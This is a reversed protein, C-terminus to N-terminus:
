STFYFYDYVFKSIRAIIEEVDKSKLTMDKTFITLAVHGLNDPLYIIGSDNVTGGITGTKHAIKTGAPLNGKIRGQGTQCELMLSLIFDCSEKDLIEKKYIMELLKNMARPSSQDELIQSFNESAKEFAEPDRKREARYAESFEDLSIGKYKEYDLGVFDMILHQCTRNVTIKELGYGRLRQNVNEAGVKTLLIDTASNDSIIMMLTILNRLSLEIGPAELDSLLGSGLHQDSKQISIEDKLTFKGEKIQALVEVLIPVKFVSAMPFYMNGNVDLEQGSELHKAAVGVEGETGHIIGEIQKKLREIRTPAQAEQEAWVSFQMLVILFVLTISIKSVQSKM